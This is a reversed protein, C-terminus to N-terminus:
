LDVGAGIAITARMWIGSSDIPDSRTGAFSPQLQLVIPMASLRVLPTLAYDLQAGMLVAPRAGPGGTCSPTFVDGGLDGALYGALGLGGIAHARLRSVIQWGATAIAFMSLATAGNQDKLVGCQPTAVPAAITNSWSDGTLFVAAGAAFSTPGVDAFRYTGTVDMQVHASGGVSGYRPLMIGVHGRLAIRRVEEADYPNVQAPVPPPPTGNKALPVDLLIARGYRAEFTQSYPAHAPLELRITHPGPQVNFSTPTKGGEAPRGDVTVAAGSPNSAITVTSPRKRLAELQQTAEERDEAPLTPTALYRELMEAAQEPQDLRVHCKAINWLEFPPGGLRHAEEFYRIADNYRGDAYAKAGQQDLIRARTLDEAARPSAARTQASAPSPALGASALAIM